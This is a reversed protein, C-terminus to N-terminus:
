PACLKVTVAIELALMFVLMWKLLLLDALISDALISRMDSM